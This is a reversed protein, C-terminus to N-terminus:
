KKLHIMLSEYWGNDGEVVKFIGGQLAGISDGSESVGCNYKICDKIYEEVMEFEVEWSDDDYYYSLEGDEDKEVETPEINSYERLETKDINHYNIGYYEKGDFMYIVEGDDYVYELNTVNMNEGM